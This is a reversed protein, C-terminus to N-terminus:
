SSVVDAIDSASVVENMQKEQLWKDRAEQYRLRLAEARDRLAAAKEYEQAQVAAMGEQAMKQLEFEMEKIEPPVSQIDIRKKSAAEDILDIAKDPLFRDNIFKASLEAAADLADDGIKVKHYAEYKDRLGQLIKKTEEISPEGVYVPQFRRELAADKEIHKRYEDLTTAGITQLEGRALLPKLINAADIAGEAAGAGVVTHLEDIFLIIKGESKQVEELVAKLREEFEGRFKAGALLSGMDLIVVRKGKLSEPVNGQIIKQALGEVIATKGVGPDGILVPNNKTRRSLIQIVRNVENDRGIVPDLKGDRAYQTLDRGYKELAMYRGEAYPDDVKRKGRIEQLARYIKEVDIKYNKLIKNSLGSEEKVVAILLHEVGVYSDKLRKAEEVAGDLVSKARPTLYIQAETNSQFYVSPRKELSSELENQIAEPSVQCRELIQSTIGEPQKVLALLIHEVDLQNHHYELLINQALQIVERAKETFQEFNM